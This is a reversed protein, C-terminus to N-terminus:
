GASYRIWSGFANAFTGLITCWYFHKEILYSFFFCLIMYTIMFSNTFDLMKTEDDLGYYIAGM